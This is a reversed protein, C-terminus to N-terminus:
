IPNQTAYDRRMSRRVTKQELNTYKIDENSVRKSVLTTLQYQHCTDRFSTKNAPYAGAGGKGLVRLYYERLNKIRAAYVLPNVAANLAVGVVYVLSQGYFRMFFSNQFLEWERLVTIHLLYCSYWVFVPVNFVLYVGTILLLTTTAKSQISRKTTQARHFTRRSRHVCWCSVCCSVCIAPFPLILQLTNSYLKFLLYGWYRLEPVVNEECQLKHPSYTYFNINPLLSPVVSRLLLYTGYGAVVSLTGPQSVKRFPAALSFTRVTSLVLVLFVSYYPILQWLVGWSACLWGASFLAPARDRFMSVLVPVLSVSTILDLVCMLLYMKNPLDRRAQQAFYVLSLTNGVGGVGLWGAVVCGGLRDWEEAVPLPTTLYSTSSSLAETFNM